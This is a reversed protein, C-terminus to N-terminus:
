VVPAIQYRVIVIGSGGSGGSYRPTFYHAYNAPNDVCAYYHSMALVPLIYLECDLSTQATRTNVGGGGRGSGGPGASGGGGGGGTAGDPGVAGRTEDVGTRIKSVGGAGNFSGRGGTTGGTGGGAIRGDFNSSGGSGQTGGGSGISVSYSKLQATLAAENGGGGRSTEGIVSSRYGGGGGGFGRTNTASGGGGGGGGVILYELVNEQATGVGLQTVTFTGSSTFTHSRYRKNNLNYDFTTGGTAEIYRVSILTTITGSVISSDPFGTVKAQAFVTYQTDDDLGSITQNASTTNSNLAVTTTVPPSTLGYVVDGNKSSNNRVTFTISDTTTSVQTITPTAVQTKVETEVIESKIKKSVPNTVLAYTYVDFATTDTLESFTINSSTANAALTIKTAPPTTLGYYLDVEANENNKFTVTISTTNSSIFNINPTATREVAKGGKRVILGEGM